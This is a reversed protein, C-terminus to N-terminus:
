GEVGAWSESNFYMITFLLMKRKTERNVEGVGRREGETCCIAGQATKITKRKGKNQLNSCHRIYFYCRGRKKEQRIKPTPKSNDEVAIFYLFNLYM